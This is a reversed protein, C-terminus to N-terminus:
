KTSVRYGLEDVSGGACVTPVLGGAVSGVSPWGDAGCVAPDGLGVLGGVDDVPEGGKSVSKM